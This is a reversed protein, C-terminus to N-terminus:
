FIGARLKLDHAAGSASKHLCHENFYVMQGPQLTIFSVGRGELYKEPETEDGPPLILHPSMRGAFEMKLERPPSALLLGPGSIHAHIDRWHSERQRDIHWPLELAAGLWLRVLAASTRSSSVFRDKVAGEWVGTLWRQTQALAEPTNTWYHQAHKGDPGRLAAYFKDIMDSHQHAHAKVATLEASVEAPLPLPVIVGGCGAKFAARIKQQDNDEYAIPRIKYRM